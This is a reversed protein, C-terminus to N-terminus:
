ITGDDHLASIDEWAYGLALLTEETHQGLEPAPQVSGPVTASFHIPLGGTRIQGLNPHEVETLYGNAWVQEDAVVAEYTNVPGCPVDEEELRVLWHAAPREAFRDSLVTELLEANADREWPGAFRPDAILEPLDLARCVGPWFKPDIAALALWADAARYNGLTPSRRRRPRGQKGSYMYRTIQRGQLALMSGLLSVQVHQGASGHDRAFLAATIGYAFLMASVQDAMGPLGPQPDSDVGGAQEVMLGSVAQAIHDFGPRTARPGKPGFASASAYVLRPFREHLADFGLGLRDMVGPRFNEVLVDMSALLKHIIEKAAPRTLDLTISRKGRNYSEFYASFGDPLGEMQRGLEGDIRPEIKLVEAGLDALLSTAYPGQQYRTFDLVRVGTLPGAM